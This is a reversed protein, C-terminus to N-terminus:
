PQGEVSNVIALIAAKLLAPLKAWATVIRTLDQGLAVLIQADIQANGDPNGLSDSAKRLNL